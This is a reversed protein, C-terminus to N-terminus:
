DNKNEMKSLVKKASNNCEDLDTHLSLIFEAYYKAKEMHGRKEYYDLLFNANIINSFKFPTNINFIDEVKDNIISLDKLRIQEKLQDFSKNKPHNTEFNKILEIAKDYNEENFYKVPEIMDYQLKFISNTPISAENFLDISAQKNKTTLINSQVVKLNNITEPHLNEKLLENLDQEFTEYCATNNMKVLLKRVANNKISIILALAFTLVIGGVIVGVITGVKWKWLFIALIVVLTSIGIIGYTVLINTIYQKKSYVAVPLTKIKNENLTKENKPAKTKIYKVLIFPAYILGLLWCSANVENIGDTFMLSCFIVAILLYGTRFFPKDKVFEILNLILLICLLSFPLWKIKDNLVLGIETDLNGFFVFLALLITIVLEITRLWFLNIKKM